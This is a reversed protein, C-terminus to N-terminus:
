LCHGDGVRLDGALELLEGIEELDVRRVREAHAGVALGRADDARQRAVHGLHQGGAFIEVRQGADAGVEGGLDSGRVRRPM